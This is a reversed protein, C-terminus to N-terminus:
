KVNYWTLSLFSRAEPPTDGSRYELCSFVGLLTRCLLVVELAISRRALRSFDESQAVAACVCRKSLLIREADSHLIRTTTNSLM